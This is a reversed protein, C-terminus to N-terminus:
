KLKKVADDHKSPVFADPAATPAPAVTPVPTPAIPRPKPASPTRAIPGRGVNRTRPTTTKTRVKAKSRGQKPRTTAGGGQGHQGDKVPHARKAKKIRQRGPAGAKGHARVALRRGARTRTRTKRGREM